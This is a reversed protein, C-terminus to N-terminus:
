KGWEIKWKKFQTLFVESLNTKGMQNMIQENSIGIKDALFSSKGGELEIKEDTHEITGCLIEVAAERFGSQVLTKRHIQSETKYSENSWKDFILEKNEQTQPNNEIREIFETM